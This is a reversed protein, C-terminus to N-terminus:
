RGTSIQTHEAGDAVGIEYSLICGILAFIVLLTLDRKDVILTNRIWIM